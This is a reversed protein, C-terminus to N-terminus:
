LDAVTQPKWSKFPFGALDHEGDAPLTGSTRLNEASRSEDPVQAM